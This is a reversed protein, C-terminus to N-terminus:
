SDPPVDAHKEGWDFECGEWFTGAIDPTLMLSIKYQAIGSLLLIYVGILFVKTSVGHM